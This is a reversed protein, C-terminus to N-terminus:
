EDCYYAVSKFSSVYSQNFETDKSIRSFDLHDVVITATEWLMYCIILHPVFYKILGKNTRFCRKEALTTVKERPICNFNKKLIVIKEKICSKVTFYSVGSVIHSLKM